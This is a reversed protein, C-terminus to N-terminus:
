VFREKLWGSEFPSVTELDLRVYTFKWAPTSDAQMERRYSEEYTGTLWIARGDITCPEFLYWSGRATTADDAVEIKPAVMYHLAFAMHQGFEAIRAHIAQKGTHVGFAEGGDWVADETFFSVFRDPDYGEDCAKAYDVKLQTIAEVAELRALRTELAESM